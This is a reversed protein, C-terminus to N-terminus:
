KEKKINSDDLWFEIDKPKYVKGDFGSWFQNPENWSMPMKVGNIIVMYWESKGPNNKNTWM